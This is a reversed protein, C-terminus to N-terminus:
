LAWERPSMALQGYRGSAWAPQTTNPEWPTNSEPDLTVINFHNLYDRVFSRRHQIRLQRLDLFLNHFHGVNGWSRTVWEMDSPLEAHQISWLFLHPLCQSNRHTFFWAPRMEMISTQFLEDMSYWVTAQCCVLSPGAVLRNPSPTCLLECYNSFQSKTHNCTPAVHSSVWFASANIKVMKQNNTHGFSSVRPTEKLKNPANLTCTMFVSSTTLTLSDSGEVFDVASLHLKLKLSQGRNPFFHPSTSSSMKKEPGSEQSRSNASDEGCPLCTGRWDSRMARVVVPIPHRKDMITSAHKRLSICCLTSIGSNQFLVPPLRGVRAVFYTNRNPAGIEVEFALAMGDRNRVTSRM